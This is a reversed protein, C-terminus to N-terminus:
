ETDAPPNSSIASAPHFVYLWNVKLTFQYPVLWTIKEGQVEAQYYVGKISLFVKRLSHTNMVYLQWENALKACNQILPSPVRDNSPLSAFLSVLCLADDIDRLADIFTPYRSLPYTRSLKFAFFGWHFTFRCHISFVLLRRLAYREKIIHDLRYTPKNAELSKASSWEGRGLARSLKKAFAKHERLKKLIPEHQLYVIDKSYYFSTPASSGKNARKKHRPERPFIGPPLFSCSFKRTAQVARIARPAPYRQPYLATSFRRALM